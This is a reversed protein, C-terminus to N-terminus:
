SSLSEYVQYPFEKLVCVKPEGYQQISYKYAWEFILETMEKYADPAQEKLMDFDHKDHKDANAVEIMKNFANQSVRLQFSKKVEQGDVDLYFTQDVDKYQIYEEAALRLDQPMAEYLEVYYDDYDEEEPFLSTLENVYIDDLVRNSISELECMDVPYGGNKEMIAAVKKIEDESISFEIAEDAVMNDGKFIRYNFYFKRNKMMQKKNNTTKKM